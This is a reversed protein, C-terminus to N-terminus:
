CAVPSPHANPYGSHRPRATRPADGVDHSTYRAVKRASPCRRCSHGCASPRGLPPDGPTNLDLGPAPHQSPGGSGPDMQTTNQTLSTGGPMQLEFASEPTDPDVIQIVKGNYLFLVNNGAQLFGRAEPDKALEFYAASGFDIQRDISVNEAIWADSIPADLDVKGQLLALDIHQTSVQALNRFGSQTVNAGGALNAQAAQQYIQNQVRAQVTIQGAAQNLAQQNGYLAMNEASAAGGAQAAIVFTTYPTVLGYTLGLDRIRRILAPSEGEVRVEDLLRGIERTAWLRPVFPYNGAAELDFVYEFTRAQAGAQGSVRITASEGAAHFRGTLLLSSGDFMDPLSQPELGEVTMGEFTVKLNTLVPSAIRSYFSTLVQELNEGPQVYTVSGGNQEALQDLLHTNVDYGVGFVHLRAEVRRNNREAQRAIDVPDTLGATPLGDTLFVVMRTAGSRAESDRLIDLGRELAADIDTSERAYLADVFDRAARITDPRVPQLDVDFVDIRDDFGVISFRDNENLQGLIFQIANQAQDIKEGEMSGSRDVVFVIDKPLAPATEQVREPAFLFLFHGEPDGDPRPQQGTLLGSGFGGEAPAFFLHFDETPQVYKAEWTVQARGAEQRETTIPHSSSYITGLGNSSTLNVTISAEELLDSTYRETSLVYHYHLMGATPVLVEEYQLSMTRTGNAPVNVEFTLTEWDAYQLLSPDHREAVLRYLAANTVAADQKRVTQPRGDLTAEFVTVMAEPPVPFIYSATVEFAHPNYFAQEVHTTAHAEDIDVTVRHYPVVLYGTDAELPLIMGDALVTQPLLITLLVLSWLILRKTRMM